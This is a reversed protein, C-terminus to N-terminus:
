ATGYSSPLGLEQSFNGDRFIEAFPEGVFLSVTQKGSVNTLVVVTLHRSQTNSVSSHVIAFSTFKSKHFTLCFGNKFVVINKSMVGDLGNFTLRRKPPVYWRWRWPPLFLEAKWRSERQNRARSIRRGQLHLRYTEVFRRNVKLPSCPTIDWIIASKMIVATLVEFGVFDM